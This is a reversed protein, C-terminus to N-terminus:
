QVEWMAAAVAFPVNPGGSSRTLVMMVNEAFTATSGDKNNLTVIPHGYVIVLNPGIVQFRMDAM